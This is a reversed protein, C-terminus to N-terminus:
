KLAAARLTRAVYATAALTLVACVVVTLAVDGAGLVEGRLVRGMLTTQALAPLWLHWPAAGEQSFFGVLPLLSVALVVITASAQAEKFTKCRIAIAMLVAALASALPLLLAV